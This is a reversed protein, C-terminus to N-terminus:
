VGAYRDRSLANRAYVTNSTGKGMLFCGFTASKSTYDTVTKLQKGSLVPIIKEKIIIEFFIIFFREDCLTDWLSIGM